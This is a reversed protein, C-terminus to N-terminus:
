DHKISCSGDECVSRGFWRLRNRAFVRYGADTIQRIIPLRTWSAQWGRGTIQYVYRISDPGSLIEGQPTRVHLSAALTQLDIGAFEILPDDSRFDVCRVLGRGRDLKEFVAASKTCVSCWGDYYAITPVTTM